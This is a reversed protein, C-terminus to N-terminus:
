KAGAESKGNFGFGARTRLIRVGAEDKETLGKLNQATFVQCGPCAALYEFREAHIMGTEAGRHGRAGQNRGSFLVGSQAHAANLALNLVLICPEQIASGTM